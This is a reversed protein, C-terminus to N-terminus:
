RTRSLRCASCEYKELELPVTTGNLAVFVRTVKSKKPICNKVQTPTEKCIMAESLMKQMDRVIM